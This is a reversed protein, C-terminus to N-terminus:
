FRLSSRSMNIMPLNWQLTGYLPDNPVFLAHMRHVVQAYEVGPDEGLAQAVTAPDEAPDVTVTDFDAHQARPAIAGNKSASRVADLRRAMETQDRFKVIVRGSAYRNGAANVRDASLATALRARKRTEASGPTHSEGRIVGADVGSLGIDLIQRPSVATQGRLDLVLGAAALCTAIALRVRPSSM